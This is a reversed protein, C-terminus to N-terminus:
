CGHAKLHAHFQMRTVALDQFIEEAGTHVSEFDEHLLSDEGLRSVARAFRRAALVYTKLLTAKEECLMEQTLVARKPTSNM